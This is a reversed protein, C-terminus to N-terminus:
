WDGVPCSEAKLRDKLYLLCKCHPCQSLKDFREGEAEIRDPCTHCLAMRENYIEKSVHESPVLLKPINRIAM